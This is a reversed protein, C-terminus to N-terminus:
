LTTAPITRSPDGARFEALRRNRPDSQTIFREGPFALELPSSKEQPPLKEFHRFFLRNLLNGGLDLLSQAIM